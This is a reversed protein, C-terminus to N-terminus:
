LSVGTAAAVHSELTEFQDAVDIDPTLAHITVRDGTVGQVLAGPLLGMLGITLGRALGPGIRLDVDVELPDVDVPRALARRSVDVGGRVAQAVLWVLLRATGTVRPLVPRPATPPVLLLSIWTAVPVAVLAYALYSARGETLIWWCLALVVLRAAVAPILRGRPETSASM